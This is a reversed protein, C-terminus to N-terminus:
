RLSFKLYNAMDKDLFCFVYDCTKDAHFACFLVVFQSVSVFRVNQWGVLDYFRWSAMAWNTITSCNGECDIDGEIRRANAYQQWTSLYDQDLAWSITFWIPRRSQAIANAWAAVDARNDISLDDSYSGPTV